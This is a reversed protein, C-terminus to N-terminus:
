PLACTGNWGGAFYPPGALQGGSLTQAPDTVYGDSGTVLGDVDFFAGKQDQAACSRRPGEHPDQNKSTDPPAVDSPPPPDTGYRTAGDPGSDFIALASGDFPYRTIPALGWTPAAADYCYNGDVPDNANSGPENSCLRSALLVEGGGLTNSSVAKGVARAGITRAEDLATMNAVQHDGWALQM